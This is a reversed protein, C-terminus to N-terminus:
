NNRKAYHEEKLILIIYIIAGIVIFTDALNFIPMNIGFIKFSIFDVVYGRYIRDLLNGLIGGIILIKIFKFDNLYKNIIFLFLLSLIIVIVVNDQFMSFAIGTNKTYFINLFNPIVTQMQNLSFNTEILFKTLQDIVIIFILLLYTM